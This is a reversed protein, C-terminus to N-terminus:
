ESQFENQADLIAQKILANDPELSLALNWTEFAGKTDGLAWKVAGLHAAIEAAPMIDYAKTLLTLSQRLHGLRYSVWGLSDIIAANNPEHALAKRILVEAEALKVGRDAYAYGLANLANTHDPELKIIRQLMLETTDFQHSSQALLAYNYLLHIHNPYLQLAAQYSALATDTDGIDQLYQAELTFIDAALDQNQHRLQDFYPIRQQAEPSDLDLLLTLANLRDPGKSVQQLYGVAQAPLDEHLASLGMYYYASHNDSDLEILHQLHGYVLAYQHNEYALLGASYSYSPDEPYRTALENFYEYAQEYDAMLTLVQAHLTILHRPAKNLPQTFQSLYTDAAETQQSALLLEGYVVQAQLYHTDQALAKGTYIIATEFQESHQALLALALLLQKHNPYTDLWSLLTTQLNAQTAVTDNISLSAIYPLGAGGGRKLEQELALTAQNFQGMLSAAQAMYQWPLPDQPSLQSWLLSTQQLLHPNQSFQALYTARKATDLDQTSQAAALLRQTATESDGRQLSFEGILLHSLNDSTLSETPTLPLPSSSKISNSCSM